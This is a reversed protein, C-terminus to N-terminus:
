KPSQPTNNTKSAPNSQMGAPCTESIMDVRSVLMEQTPGNVSNSQTGAGQTGASNRDATSSSNGGTSNSVSSTGSQGYSSSGAASAGQGQSMSGTVRVRHGVHEGLDRSSSNLKIPQGTEPQLYYDTQQRVICGEVSPSSSASTGSQEMTRGPNAPAGSQPNSQSNTQTSSSASPTAAQNTSSSSPTTDTQALSGLSFAVILPLALSLVRKM